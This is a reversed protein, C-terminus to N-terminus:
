AGLRMKPAHQTCLTSTDIQRLLPIQEKKYKRVSYRNEALEMFNKYM